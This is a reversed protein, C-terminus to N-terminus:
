FKKTMDLKETNYINPRNNSNWRKVAERHVMTKRQLREEETLIKNVFEM